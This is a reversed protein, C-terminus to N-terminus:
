GKVEGVQFFIVSKHDDRNINSCPEFIDGHGDMCREEDEVFLACGDCMVCERAEYILKSIEFREGIKHERIKTM